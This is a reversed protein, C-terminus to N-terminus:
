QRYITPTVLLKIFNYLSMAVNTSKLSNITLLLRLLLTVSMQSLVNEASSPRHLNQVASAPRRPWFTRDCNDIVIRSHRKSVIVERSVLLKSIQQIRDASIRSCVNCVNKLLLVHPDSLYYSTCLSCCSITGACVYM